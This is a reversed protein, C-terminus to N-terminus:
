VEVGYQCHGNGRSPGYPCWSCNIRNPKPPFLTADTLERCRRDISPLFAMAQERTYIKPLSRKGHDVYEFQTRVVQLSPFRMFSTVTYIQGQQGHKVENGEKKGSKYDTLEASTKEPDLFVFRDVKVRGWVNAAMWEASTWDNAIGWNEELLVREPNTQMLERTEEFIKANKKLEKPLEAIEGRVFLEAKEHIAKGRELATDRKEGASGPGQAERREIKDVYELKVRYPCSWHELKSFSWTPILGSM